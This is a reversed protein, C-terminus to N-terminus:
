LKKTLTLTLTNGEPRDMAGFERLYRLSVFLSWKPVVLMVEPGAGFVRDLNPSAPTAGHQQDKTTQQQYYGAAGVELTKTLSKSVGWELSFTDGPTIDCDRQETHIEYRNLVSVSWTKEADPYWTGGLTLMNSWFGKGPKAPSSGSSRGTPLWLGYGVGLDAQKWHWSLTIPEVFIDGLGFSSDAIVPGDGNAARKPSPRRALPYDDPPPGGGSGPLQLKFDTYIFPVLCDLGYSAGAIKLDTIWVPRLAQAYVSLNLDGVSGSGPDNLRDAYYFLNYDRLYLGPPPLSGGKIGEVGIPYHGGLSPQALLSAPLALLGIGALTRPWTVTHHRTKM